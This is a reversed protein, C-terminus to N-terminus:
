RVSLNDLISQNLRDFPNNRCSINLQKLINKINDIAVNVDDIQSIGKLRHIFANRKKCYKNLNDMWELIAHYEPSPKVISIALEISELSLGIDTHLWEKTDLSGQKTGNTALLLVHKIQQKQAILHRVLTVISGERDGVAFPDQNGVFSLIISAM